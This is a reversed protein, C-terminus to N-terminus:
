KQSHQVISGRLVGSERWHQRAILPETGEQGVFIPQGLFHLAQAYATKRMLDTDNARPVLLNNIRPGSM